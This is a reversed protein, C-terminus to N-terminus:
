NPRIWPGGNISVEAGRVTGLITVESEYYPYAVGPVRHYGPGDANPIRMVVGPGGGDQSEILAMDEYDTSWSTFSSDTEGGAHANPDANPGWRPEAVGQQANDYARQWELPSRDHAYKVGRYLYPEEAADWSGGNSCGGNCSDPTLGLPDSWTIPNHPYMGPNPSPALGLPDGTLFRGIAPDYYRHLSYHLGSESDHIQGSFRLPSTANGSWTTKGWVDVVASSFTSGEAMDILEIPSGVLSTVIAFFQRDIALQDTTQTLPIWTGPRYHWRNTATATIQEVVHTGDWIYDFRELVIGDADIRQKVARRGFADYTYHWWQGAPTQIDTLQDFSNYRYHWIDPKRSLRTTVKRTLRGSEDYHYRTRGDRILLNDRYERTGDNSPALQADAPEPLTATSTHSSTINSLPDYTYRETPTGNHALTTIRGLPDLDYDRHTPPEDPHHTTHTTIYGDPRWSYEDTRISRPGSRDTSDLGLNLLRVPNAIVDQRVLRGAIDRTNEVALDGLRWRSLQGAPDYDFDIDHGDATLGSPRGIYDYRWRTEAGSPTIRRIRRGHQDHEFQMPSQHDLQQSLLEGTRSYVFELSHTASEGRGSVANVVRGSIDHTYRIWDGADTVIATLRGLIDHTHHRTVGTAPTVTAVRGASDITYTTTAGAYDTESVLRGAADYSYHWTQGNPNTVGTLRRETDWAYTTTAGAPDTRAALLDFAGYRFSTVGGAANTHALLNDEGDYVWSETSGDAASRTLLRGTPSWRHLTSGGLPDLIRLPRGFGDREIRTEAGLPDVIRVPLGAVDVDIRTIAGNPEAITAVAGCGHHTFVIRNGAPDTTASLNGHQDWERERVTGDVDTIRSPRHRFVYELEMTEGDPRTISAVDGQETYTYRTTAGDPAVVVLPNRDRNYDYHTRAGVPDRVDRLRLDTDFGNVTTAGLSDTYTTVSGTGDGFDLYDFESDLIGSSGRQRIIRGREDYTNLMYNDNSDAWSLMRDSEDYTFRTTGGNGNTVTVLRGASYGFGRVSTPTEGDLVALGIVRGHATAVSVRYGGSHTIEVPNGDADYHFRIRNQHRDTIASIAYNGLAVDLGALASEPAFHWILERDPDWVRYGGVDTRTLTWRQAGALPVVPTDSEPNPYALMVGDEAILTVGQESVVVRMDLTASWSPGFWRGFRYDSRHRRKLVLGLVGPLSLDTEPLLFEGTAVDVPDRCVKVEDPERDSRAGDDAVSDHAGSDDHARSAADPDDPSHEPKDTEGGPEHDSGNPADDEPARTHQPDDARNPSHEDGDAHDRDPSPRDGNSHDRDPSRQDGDSHDRGPSHRDGGSHDHDSPSRSDGSWDPSNEDPNPRARTDDPTRQGDGDAHDREPSGSRNDPEHPKAADPDSEHPRGSNPDHDEPNRAPREPSDHNPRGGESDRGPARSNAPDSTRPANSEPARASPAEPARQAPNPRATDGAHVSSPTTSGNQAPDTNARQSPTEADRHTNPSDSHPAASDPESTARTAPAEHGASDAHPGATNPDDHPRSQPSDPEPSRTGPEPSRNEPASRSDPAEPSGADSRTEPTAAREPADAHPGAEPSDSRPSIESRPPIEPTESRPPTEPVDSRPPTESEPRAPSENHPQSEPGDSRTPAEHPSQDVNHIADPSDSQHVSPEPSDHAPPSSDPSDPKAAPEPAQAHEPAEARSPTEPRAAPSDPRAAADISSHPGPGANEPVGAHPSDPKPNPALSDMKPAHPSGVDPLGHTPVDDALRTVRRTADGVKDLASVVPKASGAGGTAVSILVDGTLQGAFEFPNTRADNAFADVMAKPDSVAVVLGTGLDSMASLYQAPHTVNYTDGPNVSRIFQVMSTLGTLLGSGFSNKAAEGIDMLDTADALLKSTFPPETPARGTAEAIKAAAQSAATDRRERADHLIQRANDRIPTWTDALPGHQKQQDGSLSKWWATKSRAEAVARKYEAIADAASAQAAVVAHSWGDLETAATTFSEASDWWLKPQKDYVANFGDAGEGTWDAADITRLADGTSSIATAMERLTQVVSDIESPEGRILEKPDESQGLEREVVEGGTASVIQDGLDDLWEGVGDAGVKDAVASAADLAKDTLEGVKEVGEDWSHDIIDVLNDIGDWIGM